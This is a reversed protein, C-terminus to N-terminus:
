VYDHDTDDDDHDCDDDDGNDCTVGARGKVKNDDYVADDNDDHNVM